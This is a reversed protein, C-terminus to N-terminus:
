ADIKHGEAKYIARRRRAHRELHDNGKPVFDYVHVINEKDHKARLGRGLRQKTPAIDGAANILVDISPFDVGETFINSGILIKFKDEKFAKVHRKLFATPTTGHLWVPKLAALNLASYIFDGHHIHKVLILISTDPHSECIKLIESNLNPNRCLLECYAEDYRTEEYDEETPPLLKVFKIIPTALIGKDLLEENSTSHIKPGFVSCITWRKVDRSGKTKHMDLTDASLGYRYYSPISMLLSRFTKASAHHAEDLVLLSVTNKQGRTIKEVSKTIGVTVRFDTDFHGDGIIGIEEDLYEELDKSTQYLLNKTHVCILAKGQIGACLMALILTKGGGTPVEILGRRQKFADVIAKVQHERPTHKKIALIQKLDLDPKRKSSTEVIVNPFKKQVIMLLGAPFRNNRRDYFRIYGDWIGQKYKKSWRAGSDKIKLLNHVEQIEERTAEIVQCWAGGDVIQM